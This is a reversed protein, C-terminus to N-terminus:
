EEEAKRLGFQPLHVTIVDDGSHKNWEIGLMPNCPSWLRTTKTLWQTAERLSAFLPSRQGDPTVGVFETGM